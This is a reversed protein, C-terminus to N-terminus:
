WRFPHFYQGWDPGTIGSLVDMGEEVRSLDIITSFYAPLFMAGTVAEMPKSHLRDAPTTM